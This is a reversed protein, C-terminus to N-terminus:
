GWGLGLGSRLVLVVGWGWGFVVLLAGIKVRFRDIVSAGWRLGVVLGLGM